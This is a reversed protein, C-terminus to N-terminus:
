CERHWECLGCSNDKEIMIACPRVGINFTESMAALKAHNSFHPHFFYQSQPVGGVNPATPEPVHSIKRHWPRLSATASALVCSRELIIAIFFRVPANPHRHPDFVNILGVSFADCRSKVHRKRWRVHGPVDALHVDPM